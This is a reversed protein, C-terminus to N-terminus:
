GESASLPVGSTDQTSVLGILAEAADDLGGRRSGAGRPGGGLGGGRASGGRSRQSAASTGAGPPACGGGDMNHGSSVRRARTHMQPLADEALGALGSGDDGDGPFGLAGLAGMSGAPPLGMGMLIGGMGGAPVAAASALRSSSGGGGIRARSGNGFSGSKSAGTGRRSGKQSTRRNRSTGADDNDMDADEEDYNDEEDYSGGNGNDKYGGHAAGFPPMGVNGAGNAGQQAMLIHDIEENSLEQEVSCSQCAQNWVNDGCEWEDTLENDRIHYPVKRWKHCKNCQVWKQLTEKSPRIGRGGYANAQLSGQEMRIRGLGGGPGKRNASDALAGLAGIADLEEADSMGATFVASLHVLHFLNQSLACGPDSATNESQTTVLPLPFM